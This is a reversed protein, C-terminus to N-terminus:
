FGFAWQVAFRDNDVDADERNVLYEFKIVSSATRLYVLGLALQDGSEVILDHDMMADFLQSGRVLPVWKGIHYGVQWYYGSRALAGVDGLSEFRVEQLTKIWEGRFEVHRYRGALDAGYATFRLDGNDDYAGTMASFNAEIFPAVGAGIRGGVLKDTNNDRFNQGLLVEAIEGQSHPEGHTVAEEEHGNEDDHGSEAETHGEISPGQTFYGVATIFGRDGVDFSARAQVGVDSLVPLLSEAPAGGGHHGGYLPPPSVFKNIWGPHYRESFANFPVLFKGAVVKLNDTVAYIIDAYELEASTSGDGFGLAVEAEFLLRAAPQVLFIPSFGFASDNPTSDKARTAEFGASGYGTVLFTSARTTPEGTDPERVPTQATVTASALLCIAVPLTLCRALFDRDM